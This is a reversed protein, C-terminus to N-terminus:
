GRREFVVKNRFEDLSKDFDRKISGSCHYINRDGEIQVHTHGYTSAAKGINFELAKEKSTFVKVNIRRKEDLEYKYRNGSKAILTTLKLNSITNKVKEILDMDPKFADEGVVWGGKRNELKVIRDGKKIEVKLIAERSIKKVEPVEYHVKDSRKFVIYLLSVAIVVTIILLELNVKKKKM